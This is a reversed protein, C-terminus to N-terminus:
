MKLVDHWCLETPMVLERVRWISEDQHLDYSEILQHQYGGFLTLQDNVIVCASFMHRRQPKALFVECQNNPVNYRLFVDDRGGVVYVDGELSTVCAGYVQGAEKPLRYGKWRVNRQRVDYVYVHSTPTFAVIIRRQCVTLMPRVMAVPLWTAVTWKNNDLNLCDVQLADDRDIAYRGGLVYVDSGVVVASFNTRAKPMDPLDHWKGNYLSCRSTAHQGDYGGIIIISRDKICASGYGGTLM